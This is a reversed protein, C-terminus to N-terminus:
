RTLINSTERNTWSLATNKANDKQQSSQIEASRTNLTPHNRTFRDTKYIPRINLQNKFRQINVPKESRSLAPPVHSRAKRSSIDLVLAEKCAIRM